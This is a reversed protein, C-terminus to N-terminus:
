RPVEIEIPECRINKIDLKRLAAVVASTVFVFAIDNSALFFDSEDWRSFDLRFRRVAGSDSVLEASGCRGRVAFGMIQDPGAIGEITAPFTSWGTLEAKTLGDRLHASILFLIGTLSWVVDELKSGEPKFSVPDEPTVLGRLLDWTYQHTQPEAYGARIADRNFPDDLIFLQPTRM